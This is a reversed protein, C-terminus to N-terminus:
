DARVDIRYHTLKVGYLDHLPELKLNTIRYGCLAAMRQLVRVLQKAKIM